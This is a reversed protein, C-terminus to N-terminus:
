LLDAQDAAPLGPPDGVQGRVQGVPGIHAEAIKVAHVQFAQVFLFLRSCLAPGPVSSCVPGCRIRGAPIVGPFIRCLRGADQGKMVSVQKARRVQFVSGEPSGAEPFPLSLDQLLRLKQDVPCLGAGDGGKIQIRSGAAHVRDIRILSDPLLAAIDKVGLGPDFVGGAPAPDVAPAVAAPLLVFLLVAQIQGAGAIDQAHLGRLFKGQDGVM